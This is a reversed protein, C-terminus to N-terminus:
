GKKEITCSFYIKSIILHVMPSWCSWMTVALNKRIVLLIQLRFRMSSLLYSIILHRFDTSVSLLLSLSSFSPPQHHYWVVFVNLQTQGFINVICTYNTDCQLGCVYFSASSDSHCEDFIWYQVQVIYAFHM